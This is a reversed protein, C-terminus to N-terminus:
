ILNAIKKQIMTADKVNITGDETIDALYQQDTNFEVLKAAFKQIATADKINLSGDMNVDGMDFYLSVPPTTGTDGEPISPAEGFYSDTYVVDADEINEATGYQGSGYYYFWNGDFPYKKLVNSSTLSTDVVFIMNEFSELGDPYLENEGPEYGSLHLNKTQFQFNYIDAEPDVGGNVFNNWVIEAVDLPVDYYYVGESDADVAEFGPWYSTPADTGEWWYIGASTTYQNEKWFEPLYFYLRATTKEDETAPASPGEEDTTGEVPDTLEEASTTAIIETADTMEPVTTAETTVVATYNTAETADTAIAAETVTTEVLPASTSEIPDSATVTTAETAVSTEPLPREDMTYIVPHLGCELELEFARESRIGLELAKADLLEDQTKGTTKIDNKLYDTIYLKYQFEPDTEDVEPAAYCTLAMGLVMLLSLLVALAKGFSKM